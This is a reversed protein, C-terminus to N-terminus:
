TTTFMEQHESPKHIHKIWEEPMMTEGNAFLLV